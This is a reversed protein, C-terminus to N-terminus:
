PHNRLERAAARGDPARPVRRPESLLDGTQTVQQLAGVKRTLGSAAEVDLSGRFAVFRGTASEKDYAVM